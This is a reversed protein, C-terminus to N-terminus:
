ALEIATGQGGALRDHGVTGRVVISKRHHALGAPLERLAFAAPERDRAGQQLTGVTKDEVLAEGGEVRLGQLLRQLAHQLTGWRQQDDGM